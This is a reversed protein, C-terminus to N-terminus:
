HQQNSQQMSLRGADVAAPCARLKMKLYQGREGVGPAREVGLLAPKRPRPGAAPVPTLRSSLSHRRYPSPRLHCRPNRQPLPGIHKHGTRKRKLPHPAPRAHVAVACPRPATAHVITAAGKRRRAPNGFIGGPEDNRTKTQSSIMENAHLLPIRPTCLTTPTCGETRNPLLV